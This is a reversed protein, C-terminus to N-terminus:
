NGTGTIAIQQPAGAADDNLTLTGSFAGKSTPKFTVTVNCSVGPALTSGCANSSAFPSSVTISKGHVTSISSQNTLQVKISASQNVKVSGFNVPNPQISLVPAPTPTSTPTGTATPTATLTPSATATPTPTATATATMTATATPTATPTDTATPTATPTPTNTPTATASPTDTATATATPTATSTASATATPTPAPPDVLSLFATTVCSWDGPVTTGWNTSYSSNAGNGAFYAVLQLPLGNASMLGTFGNAPGASIVGNSIQGCSAMVLEDGDLPAVLGSRPSQDSGTTCLSSDLPYSTQAGTWESLQASFSVPQAFTVTVTTPGAAINPAYWTETELSNNSSACPSGSNSWTNGNSDSVSAVSPMGGNSTVHLVMLDSANTTITDLSGTSVNTFNVATQQVLAIAPAPTASVTPSPSITPTDTPTPTDTATIAVTPTPTDTPNPTLSATITSSPTTTLTPTPTITPTPTAIIPTPTVMGFLLMRSWGAGGNGGSGAGAQASGGAGGNLIIAGSTAIYNSTAMLVVGGGGGGGGGANISGAPGPMGNSGSVDITGTFNISDACVLVIGGGGYGGAGGAFTGKGGAGGAAGSLTLQDGLMWSWKQSALTPTTGVGGSLGIAGAAGGAAAHIVSYDPNNYTTGTVAYNAGGFMNSDDGRLGANNAAAGGGGGGSGGGNAYEYNISSAKITGAITCPGNVFALWEGRPLNDSATPTAHTDTITVTAGAPVTLSPYCHAGQLTASGNPDPESSDCFYHAWPPADSLLLPGNQARAVGGALVQIMFTLAPLAARQLSQRMKPQRSNLAIYRRDRM